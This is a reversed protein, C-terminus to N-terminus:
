RAGPAAPDDGGPADGTEDDPPRPVQCARELARGAFLLAVSLVAAAVSVVVRERPLAADLHPLNRVTVALYGGVLAAGGLLAAKGALLLVIARAPEVPQQRVQVTRHMWRAALGASLALLGIVLATLWPVPPIPWGFSEVATLGVWTLGAGIVGALVLASSRTPEVSPGPHAM